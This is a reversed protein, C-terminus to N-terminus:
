STSEEKNFVFSVDKPSLESEGEAQSKNRVEQRLNAVKPQGFAM